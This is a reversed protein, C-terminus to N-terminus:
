QSAEKAEAVAVVLRALAEPITAGHQMLKSTDLLGTYCSATAMGDVASVLMIAHYGRGRLWALMEPVCAYDTSYSGACWMGAKGPKRGILNPGDWRLKAWGLARAVKEDLERSM